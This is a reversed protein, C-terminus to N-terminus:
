KGTTPAITIDLGDPGLHQDLLGLQGNAKLRAFLKGREEEWIQRLYAPNTRRGEEYKKLRSTFRAADEVALRTVKNAYAAAEQASRYKASEATQLDSEVRQRTGNLLTEVRTQERAVNDFAFKVDEPPAILAVRADLLQVGLRYGAIREQTAAILDPPLATKGNLLVDDVDRGGVWQALVTEAARVLLGEVREGQVVYDEVEDLRVKYSITVAVNVLNQDGTLLQGAPMVAADADERFGVAVTQVRDVAVRDLGWPLGVWLGPEPKEQLVAGLRRVVAREGPRVQVIGTALYALVAIVVLWRFVSV